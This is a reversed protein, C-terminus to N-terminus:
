FRPPRPELFWSRLNKSRVLHVVLFRPLSKFHVGESSGSHGQGHGACPVCLIRSGAFGDSSGRSYPFWNRICACDHQQFACAPLCPRSNRAFHSPLCAYPLQLPCQSTNSVYWSVVTNWLWYRIKCVCTEISGSITIFAYSGLPSSARRADLSSAWHRFLCRAQTLSHLM